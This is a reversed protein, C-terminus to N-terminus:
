LYGVSGSCFLVLYASHEVCLGSSYVGVESVATVLFFCSDWVFLFSISEPVVIPSCWFDVVCSLPCPLFVEINWGLLCLFIVLSSMLFLGLFVACQIDGPDSWSSLYQSLFRVLRCSLSDCCSWIDQILWSCAMM